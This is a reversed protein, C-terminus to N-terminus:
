LVYVYCMNSSRFTHLSVKESTMKWHVDPFTQFANLQLFWSVDDLQHNWNLGDSFIHEDFQSDNGWTYPQFYFINSNGGGLWLITRELEHEELEHDKPCKPRDDPREKM